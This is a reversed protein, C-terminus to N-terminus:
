LIQRIMQELAFNRATYEAGCQNTCQNMFVKPKCVSCILHGNSCNYIEVPPWMEKNCGPCSPIVSASPDSPPPAPAPHPPAPDSSSPATDPPPPAPASPPPTLKSHTFQPPASPLASAGGQKYTEPRKDLENLLTKRANQRHILDGM